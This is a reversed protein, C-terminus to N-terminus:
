TIVSKRFEVDVVVTTGSGIIVSKRFELSKGLNYYRGIVSIFPPNWAPATSTWHCEASSCWSAEVASSVGAHLLMPAGETM